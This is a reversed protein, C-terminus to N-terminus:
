ILYSKILSALQEPNDTTFFYNKGTTVIKIGRSGGAVYGWTKDRGLRIGYGMYNTFEFKQISVEKVEGKNITARMPGFGFRLQQDTLDIQLSSFFKFFCFFIIAVITLIVKPATESISDQETFWAGYAIGLFIVAGVLFVAIVLMSSRQKEEYIKNM